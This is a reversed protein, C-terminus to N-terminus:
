VQCHLKKARSGRERVRALARKLDALKIGRSRAFENRCTGNANAAEWQAKLKIDADPDYKAPAGRKPKHASGGRLNARLAAPESETRPLAESLSKPEFNKALPPFDEDCLEHQMYRIWRRLLLIAQEANGGNVHRNCGPEEYWVHYETRGVEPDRGAFVCAGYLNPSTTVYAPIPFLDALDPRGPYFTVVRFPPGVKEAMEPEILRYTRELRASLPEVAEWWAGSREEEIRAIIERAIKVFEKITKVREISRPIQLVVSSSAVMSSGMRNKRFLICNAM